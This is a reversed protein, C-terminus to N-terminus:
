SPTMLAPNYQPYLAVKREFLMEPLMSGETM